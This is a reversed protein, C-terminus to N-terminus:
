REARARRARRAAGSAQAPLETLREEISRPEPARARLERECLDLYVRVRDLLARENPHQDLLDRFLAAASQYEHRQMGEM